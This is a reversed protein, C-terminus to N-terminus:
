AGPPAPHRRLFDNVIRAAEAPKQLFLHHVADVEVVTGQRAHARFQAISAQRWPVVTEALFHEIRARMEPTAAALRYEPRAVAYIALAPSRLREYAPPAAVISRQMEGFQAEGMRYGWSGDARPAISARCDREVVDHPFLAYVPRTRFLYAIFADPTARDAATPPAPHDPSNREVAEQGTRDYAADLYVLSAVREPHQAAFLTMESGAESHGVLHVRRIRLADLFLGIDAALTAQDYGAAPMDSAGHGRRTLALVRHEGTLRPAFDSYIWATNGPGALLLVPDGRGGFDLYHLRVGEKGVAFGSVPARQASAAAACGVLLLLAMLAHAFRRGM